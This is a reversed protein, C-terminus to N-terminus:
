RNRLCNVETTYTIATYTIWTGYDIVQSTSKNGLTVYSVRICWLSKNYLFKVFLINNM